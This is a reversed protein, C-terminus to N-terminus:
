KTREERLMIIEEAMECTLSAMTVHDLSHCLIVSVNQTKDNAEEFLLSSQQKHAEVLESEAEKLKEKAEDFKSERSLYIAEMALSKANGAHLIIQFTNNKNEM